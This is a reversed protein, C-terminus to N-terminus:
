SPIGQALLERAEEAQPHKKVKGLTSVADRAIISLSQRRALGVKSEAELREPSIEIGWVSFKARELAERGLDPGLIQVIRLVLEGAMEEAQVLRMQLYELLEAHSM